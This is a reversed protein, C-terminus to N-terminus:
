EDYGLGLKIRELNDKMIELYTIGKEYEEKSINHAAHLLLMQAGTEESIVNAVRPSVMEEYYIYKLELDKINNILEAIKRSSPEADPAFGEYPSTYNLGYRNAFYRFAFHGGFMITNYKTKSFVNICDEHFQRLKAKFKQSNELYINEKDPDVQVLGEVINDVMKQAYIPDLWIHPDKGGDHNHGHNHARSDDNHGKEDILEIGKSVDIIVFDEGNISELIKDVWPEMYKGTYIFLDAKKINVIDQPTPDYSHAEIGPSLLLNVNANNGVIQKTFDYQPFLTTIINIDFKDTTDAKEVDCGAGFISITAILLLLNITKLAEKMTKLM